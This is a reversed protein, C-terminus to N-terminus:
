ALRQKREEDKRMKMERERQYKAILMDERKQMNDQEKLVGDAM